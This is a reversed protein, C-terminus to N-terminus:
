LAFGCYPCFRFQPDVPRSCSHCCLDGPLSTVTRHGGGSIEDFDEGNTPLSYPYLFSCNRCYFAPTKGPWRWVPVFFLKLVKEYDVLDASGGCRICRGAADKLVRGAQQEIGGVFFFFMSYRLQEISREGLFLSLHHPSCCFPSYNSRLHKTANGGGSPLFISMSGDM